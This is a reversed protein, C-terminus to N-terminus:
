TRLPIRSPTRPRPQSRPASPRPQVRRGAPLQAPRQSGCPASDGLSVCCSRVLAPRPVECADSSRPLPHLANSSTIRKLRPSVEATGYLAREVPETRPAREVTSTDDSCALFLYSQSNFTLDSEFLKKRDKLHGSHSNLFLTVIFHNKHTFTEM